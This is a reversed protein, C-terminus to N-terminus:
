QPSGRDQEPDREESPDDPTGLGLAVLALIFLAAVVAVLARARELDYYIIMITRKM